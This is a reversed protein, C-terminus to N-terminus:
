NGGTSNLADQDVNATLNSARELGSLGATVNGLYSSRVAHTSSLARRTNSSNYNVANVINISSAAAAADMNAGFYTFGWGQKQRIDILAKIAVHTFIRSKNEAGDTFIYVLVNQEGEEATDIRMGVADYLATLGNPDYDAKVIERVESLPKNAFVVTAESSFKTLSVTYEVEKTKEEIRMQQIQENFGDIVTQRQGSMSGSEDLIFEVRIKNKM